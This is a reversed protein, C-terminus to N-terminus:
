GRVARSAGMSCVGRPREQSGLLSHRNSRCGGPLETGRSRCWTPTPIRVPGEGWQCRPGQGEQGTVDLRGLRLASRRARLRVSAWWWRGSVSRGAPEGPRVLGQESSLCTDRLPGLRPGESQDPLASQFMAPGKTYLRGSAARLSHHCHRTVALPAALPAGFAQFAKSGKGPHSCCARGPLPHPCWRLRPEM